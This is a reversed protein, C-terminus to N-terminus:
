AYMGLTYIVPLCYVLIALDTLLAITYIIITVMGLIMIKKNM